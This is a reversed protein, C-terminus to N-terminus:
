GDGSILDRRQAGLPVFELLAEAQVETDLDFSRVSGVQGCADGVEFCRLRRSTASRSARM